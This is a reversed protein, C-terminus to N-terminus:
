HRGNGNTVRREGGLNVIRPSARTLSRMQWAVAHKMVRDDHAGSDAAYKGHSQQRFTLLEALLEADPFAVAQGAFASVADSLDDLMVPRTIANTDWGAREDQFFFMPGGRRHSDGYGSETAAKIVAHGYGVREIGVLARNYKKCVESLKRGLEEPRMLGHVDCVPLGTDRRLIVFGNPDGGPIGESTDCGAVYEVGPKPEEWTTETWGKASRTAVPRALSLRERLKIVAEIDFFCRGAALFCSEDDEPYEQAFLEGFARVQERRWALQAPVLRHAEVLQTERETLTAVIEDPDFTGLAARNTRDDLWAFFIPTWGNEGRKAARYTRCFWETGNPTSELTVEGHQAAGQIGAVLDGVDRDQNPGECWRSVESGHVRSLADGRSFGRAGATGTFYWSGNAFEIATSADNLRRPHQPDNEHFTEVMRFIRNTQDRTNALTVCQVGPLTSCAMYSLAQEITTFGGRRYKLLIFRRRGAKRHLRKLALYRRQLPSPELTVLPTGVDGSHWGEGLQAAAEAQQAATLFERAKETRVRLRTRAFTLARPGALQTARSVEGMLVRVHAHKAPDLEVTLRVTGCDVTMRRKPGSQVVLSLCAGLDFSIGNTMTVVLALCDHTRNWAREEHVTISVAVGLVSAAELAAGAVFRIAELEDVQSADVTIRGRERMAERWAKCADSWRKHLVVNVQDKTHITKM